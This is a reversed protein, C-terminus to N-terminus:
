KVFEKAISDLVEVGAVASETETLESYNMTDPDWNIKFAVKKGDGDRWKEFSLEMVKILKLDDPQSMTMVVDPDILWEKAYRVNWRNQVKAGFSKGTEGGDGLQTTTIWPVNSAEAAVQIEQIIQAQDKWERSASLRYAGDIIVDTAGVEKAYALVDTVNKVENKGIFIADDDGSMSDDYMGKMWKEEMEETLTADRLMPYPVKYRICDLRLQLRSPNMEMSVVLPKRKQNLLDDVIMMILWSKGTSTLAAIVYFLGNQWGKIVKNFTPWRSGAGLLGSSAKLSHYAMIREEFSAKYPSPKSSKRSYKAKIRGIEMMRDIADMPSGGGIHRLGDEFLPRLEKILSRERIRRVLSEVTEESPSTPMFGFKAAIEGRSPMEGHVSLSLCYEWVAKTEPPLMWPELGEKGASLFAGTDICISVLAEGLGDKM